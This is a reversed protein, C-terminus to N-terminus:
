EETKWACTYCLSNANVSAHCHNEENHVWDFGAHHALACLRAMQDLNPPWPVFDISRGEFHQSYKRSLNTQAIDHEMLSDYAETVMIQVEGAWEREVLDALTALPLVIAPHMMADEAGFPPPESESYLIKPNRYTVLQGFACSDREIRCAMPGIAEDENELYSGSASIHQGISLELPQGLVDDPAIAAAAADSAPGVVIQVDATAIINFERTPLPTPPPRTEIELGCANLLLLVALWGALRLHRVILPQTVLHYM